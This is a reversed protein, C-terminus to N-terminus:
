IGSETGGIDSAYQERLKRKLEESAGQKPLTNLAHITARLSAVFANCGSCRRAHYDFEWVEKSSLDGELYGSTLQRFKRCSTEKGGSFFLDRLRGLM